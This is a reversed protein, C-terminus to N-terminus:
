TASHAATYFAELEGPIDPGTPQYIIETVGQAAYDRIRRGIDHATGGGAAGRPSCPVVVCLHTCV